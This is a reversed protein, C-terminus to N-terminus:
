LPIPHTHSSVTMLADIVACGHGEAYVHLPNIEIESVDLDQFARTLAEITKVLSDFDAPPAGRFGHLLPACKLEDLMERIMESNVPLLRHIVDGYFETLIGGLGITLVGGFSRDNHVGILLEAVPHSMKQILLGEIRARPANQHAAALIERAASQVDTVTKLNLRVGGIETKHAIDASLLKVAVPYGLANAMATAEEENHAIGEAILPVGYPKLLQKVQHENLPTTLRLSSAQKATPRARLDQWARTQAQRSQWLCYPAIARTARGIDDFVPVGGQNLRQRQQAKGTDIAFLACAHRQRTTILPTSLKDLLTGPASVVIADVAGSSALTELLTLAFEADNVINGTVDIPNAVMGYDPVGQRLRTQLDEPLTPVEMGAHNLQDALVAGIAGSLTVIAVRKGSIASGATSWAAHSAFNTLWAIDAMQTFDHCHIANVQALVTRYIAQNGSLAATHSRVAEAGKDSEGSKYILLPKHESALKLAANIFRAGQRIQELYGVVCTTNAADALHELYDAFGLNAENGTNIFHSVDLERERLMGFLASCINGSQTLLGIRGPQHQAPFNKFVTAFATYVRADLNAFGMCNPGALLMGSSEAFKELAHQLRAGEGPAEAFGSAYIIAARIGKAHCRELMPTVQDAAIALVALDPAEPLQEIQAFCPYGMVSTHRANVGYVAGPYGFDRLLAIPMGGIRAPNDSAGIFVISRPAL